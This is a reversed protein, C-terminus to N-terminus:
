RSRNRLSDLIQRLVAQAARRRAPKASWVAPLVVGVFILAMMVTVTYLLFDARDLPGILASSALQGTDFDM